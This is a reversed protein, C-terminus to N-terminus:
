RAIPLPGRLIDLRKQRRLFVFRRAGGSGVRMERRRHYNSRYPFPKRSHSQLFAGLNKLRRQAYAMEQAHLRFFQQAATLAGANFDIRNRRADRLLKIGIGRYERLAELLRRKGIVIKICNDAVDWEAVVGDVVRRVLAVQRAGYVVIEEGLGEVLEAGAADHREDGAAVGHVLLIVGYAGIEGIARVERARYAKGIGCELAVGPGLHCGVNKEQALAPMSFDSGPLCPAFEAVDFRLVAGDGDIFIKGTM